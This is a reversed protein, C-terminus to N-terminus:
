PGKVRLRRGPILDPCAGRSLLTRNKRGGNSEDPTSYTWCYRSTPFGSPPRLSPPLSLAFLSFSRAAWSPADFYHWDTRFPQWMGDGVVARKIGAAGSSPLKYWSTPGSTFPRSPRGLNPFVRLRRYGPLVHQPHPSFTAYIPHRIFRIEAYRAM